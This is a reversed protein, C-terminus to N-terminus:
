CRHLASLITFVLIYPDKPKSLMLLLAMLTSRIYHQTEMNRISRIGNSVITTIRAKYHANDSVSVRIDDNMMQLMVYYNIKPMNAFMNPHVDSFGYNDFIQCLLNWRSQVRELHIGSEKPLPLRNRQRYGWVEFIRKRDEISLPTKSYPNVPHHSQCSWRYITDFDFWWVKGNEELSFYDFPHQKSKDEFTVLDEDNVLEKRCLVGKGCLKLYKRVLWGRVLSQFMVIGCAEPKHVESWLVPKKMKAHRGCLTHQYLPKVTCQDTSGKKKVAACRNM